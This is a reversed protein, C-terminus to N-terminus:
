TYICYLWCQKGGWMHMCICICAYDCLALSKFSYVGMSICFQGHRWSTISQEKMRDTFASNYNEYKTSNNPENFLEHVVNYFDLKLIIVM